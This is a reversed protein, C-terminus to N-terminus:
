AGAHQKSRDCVREDQCKGATREGGGGARVSIRGAVDEGGLRQEQGLVGANREGLLALECAQELGGGPATVRQANRDDGGGRIEPRDGLEPTLGLRIGPEESLLEREHVPTRQEHDHGAAVADGRVARWVGRAHGREVAQARGPPPAARPVAASVEISRRAVAEPWETGIGAAVAVADVPPPVSGIGSIASAAPATSIATAHVALRRARGRWTPRRLADEVYVRARGFGDPISFRPRWAASLTVPM